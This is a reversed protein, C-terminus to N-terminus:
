EAIMSATKPNSLLEEFVQWRTDVNNATGGNSTVYEAVLDKGLNYNIVYSRYKDIFRTRQYAKEQSYLQYKQMIEAAEDRTIMGNLYQRAAENGAYTLKGILEHVQYYLDAKSVDLGALPFLVEKEYNLRSEGPFAVDIGYNASGEAILSQPSFLQYVSFEIWQNEKVLKQELLANYVHHGPYGEHAALDIARTIYIPFDINIQILSQANGQYYNYGSWAKDTVYELVFNENEPLSIKALTRKRAEAIATKFVIDIKDKPIEFQSTFDVYRQSLAGEGPLLGNLQALLADFYELEFKPPAADYLLNAEQDFSYEKGALMNVKTKIAILQKELMERRAQQDTPIADDALEKIERILIEVTASLEDAPFAAGQELDDPKLEEPGYYADVIDGDFQGVQLVLKVYDTAISNLDRQVIKSKVDQNAVAQNSETTTNCGFLSAILVVLIPSKKM